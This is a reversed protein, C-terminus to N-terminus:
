TGWKKSVKLLYIKFAAIKWQKYSRQLMCVYIDSLHKQFLSIIINRYDISPNYDQVCHPVLDVSYFPISNELLYMCSQAGLRPFRSTTLLIGANDCEGGKKFNKIVALELETTELSPYGFARVLTGLLM